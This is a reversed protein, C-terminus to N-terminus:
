EQVRLAYLQTRCHNFKEDLPGRLWTGDAGSAIVYFQKGYAVEVCTNQSDQIAVRISLVEEDANKATFRFAVSGHYDSAWEAWDFLLRELDKWEETESECVVQNSSDPNEALWSPIEFSPWPAQDTKQGSKVRKVKDGDTTKNEQKAAAPNGKMWAPM